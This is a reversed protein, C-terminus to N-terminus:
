FIENGKRRYIYGFGPGKPPSPLPMWHTVNKYCGDYGAWEGISNYFSLCIEGPGLKSTVNFALCHTLKDPLRDKVSIWEDNCDCKGDLTHWRNMGNHERVEPEDPLNGSCLCIDTERSYAYYKCKM